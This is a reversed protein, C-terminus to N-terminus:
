QFVNRIIGSHAGCQPYLGTNSDFERRNLDGAVEVEVAGDVGGVVDDPSFGVARWRTCCRASWSRGFPRSHSWVTAFATGSGAVNTNSTRAAAPTHERRVPGYFDRFSMLAHSQDVFWRKRSPETERFRSSSTGYKGTSAALTGLQRDPTKLASDREVAM